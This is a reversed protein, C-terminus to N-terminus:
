AHESMLLGDLEEMRKAMQLFEEAPIQRVVDGTQSDVVRVITRNSEEDVEFQLNRQVSQVYRKMEAIASNLSAQNSNTSGDTRQSEQEHESAAISTPRLPSEANGQPLVKGTEQATPREKDHQREWTVSSEEPARTVAVRHESDTTQSPTTTGHTGPVGRVAFPASVESAM